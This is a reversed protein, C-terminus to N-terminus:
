TIQGQSFIAKDFAKAIKTVATTKVGYIKVKEKLFSQGSTKTHPDRNQKLEQRIKVIIKNM